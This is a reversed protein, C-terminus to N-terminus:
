RLRELLARIERRDDETPEQAAYDALYHHETLKEVPLAWEPKAAAVAQAFERGTQWELRVLGQRELALLMRRYFDGSSVIRARPLRLRRALPMAAALLAAGGLMAMAATGIAGMAEALQHFAERQGFSDFGVIDRYWRMRLEDVLRDLRRGFSSFSAPFLSSSPTADVIVWGRGEIYAEAWAHADSQRIDYFKGYENYDAALFGTVIRTPVGVHRLLIAAATAFYECNGEKTEFLFKDLTGPGGGFLSYDYHSRLYTEVARTKDIPRLKGRTIADALQIVRPPMLPVSLFASRVLQDYRLYARSFGANGHASRTAYRRGEFSPTVFYVTDNADFYMSEEPTELTRPEDLVFAVRSPMPYLTFEARETADSPDGGPFSFRGKSKPVWARGNETRRTRGGQIFRFARSSAKSWRTGDFLELAAGRVYRPQGARELPKDALEQVRLRMARASGKKLEGYFGLSVGESFGMISGGDLHLHDLAAVGLAGGIARTEFRPLVAFAGAALPLVLAILAALAGAWAPLGGMRPAGPEPPEGSAMLWSGALALFAALCVPYWLSVTLGTVLFFGLFCVAFGQALERPGKRSLLRHALIYILLHTTSNTVGFKRWGIGAGYVLMATSAPTWAIDPLRREPRRELYWGLPFVPILLLIIKTPLEDIQSLGFCVLASTAYFLEITRPTAAWGRDRAAPPAPTDRPEAGEGLLALVTFIRELHLMGRGWGTSSDPTVLNVEAGSDILFRAASAAERIAEEGGTVRLTVRQGARQAYENVLPRGTKATLKWNVQRLDDTEHYERVGFLEDGVGKRPLAVGGEVSAEVAGLDRRDRLAPWAVFAAKIAVSHRFLGLPFSSEVKLGELRNRGRFSPTAIFWATAPKGPRLRDVFAAEGGRKLRLQWSSLRAANRISLRFRFAQGEFVQDPLTIEASLRAVNLRGWAASVLISALLIGSLLYLLNNGSGSAAFFTLASAGFFYFGLRTLRL